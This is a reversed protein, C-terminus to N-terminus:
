LNSFKVFSIDEDKELVTEMKYPVIFSFGVIEEIM